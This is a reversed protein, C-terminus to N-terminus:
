HNGPGPPLISRHSVALPYTTEKQLLLFTRFKSLPTPQVVKPIYGFGVNTHKLPTFTITYSNHRLLAIILVCGDM